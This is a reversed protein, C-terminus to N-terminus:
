RSAALRTYKKHLQGVQDRAQAPSGSNDLIDDALTLRQERSLQSALAQGAQKRSSNDRAMLRNIQTEPEVDVVLIRDIGPFGEKETLLPIVLICYDAAVRSIAKVAAQRIRPHLITELKRRADPDSFILSRLESRKLRGSADIINPGFANKVELLAPQGPEVIEHAIIDTDIIPVGLKAFEDSVMTKGSAIGGTLAVTYPRKDASVSNSSV